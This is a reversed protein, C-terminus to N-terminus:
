EFFEEGIYRGTKPSQPVAYFAGNLGYYYDNLIDYKGMDNRLKCFNDLNNVYAMNLFGASQMGNEKLGQWYNYGRRLIKFGLRIDSTIAVHSAPDILYNGDEDKANFDPVTFEDGDPDSLPAATDKRRGINREQDSIRDNDWAEIDVGDDRYIMYSGGNLWEQESDSIWVYKDFEEDETPNTTGDRFGFQDRPTYQDTQRYPMYGTQTFFITAYPRAIRALHRIAHYVVSPDDGCAQIGFDSATKSSDFEDGVIRPENYLGKPKFSQLGFRDDFLDAGFGFTISLDAPYLESVDGSDLSVSDAHREPRVAGLPKGQQMLAAAATWRALLLQLDQATTGDEMNFKAFACYRQVGPNQIGVPHEQDYFPCEIGLDIMNYNPGDISTDQAVSEDHANHGAVGAVAGVVLGAATGLILSRRTFGKKNKKQEEKAKEESDGVLDPTQSSKEEDSM